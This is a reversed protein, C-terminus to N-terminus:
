NVIPNLTNLNNIGNEGLEKKLTQEIYSGLEERSSFKKNYRNFEGTDLQKISVTMEIDDKALLYFIITTYTDKGMFTYIQAKDKFVPDIFFPFEFMLWNSFAVPETNELDVDKYSAYSTLKRKLEETDFLENFKKLRM